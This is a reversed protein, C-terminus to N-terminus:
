RHDGPGLLRPPLALLKDSTLQQVIVIFQISNVDEYGWSHGVLFDVRVINWLLALRVVVSNRQPSHGSVVGLSSVGFLLM